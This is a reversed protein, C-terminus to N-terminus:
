NNCKPSEPLFARLAVLIVAPIVGLGLMLRWNASFSLIYRAWFSATLVSLNQLM